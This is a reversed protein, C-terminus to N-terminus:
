TGSIKGTTPNVTTSVKAQVTQKDVVVTVGAIGSSPGADSVTGTLTPTNINTVLTNVTVAPAHTDVILQNNATATNDVTDTATAQVTYTGDPLPQSPTVSWTNKTANVTATLTQGDVVVTVGKIGNGTLLPQSVTGTLTPKSKNITQANM